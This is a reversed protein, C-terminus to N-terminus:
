RRECEVVGSWDRRHRFCGPAAGLVAGSKSAQQEVSSLWRSQASTFREWVDHPAVRSAIGEGRKGRTIDLHILEYKKRLLESSLLIEVFTALGGIQSPGPGVIVIKPRGTKAKM